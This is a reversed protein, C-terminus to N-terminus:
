RKDVMRRLEYSLKKRISSFAPRDALNIDERDDISHDYLEAGATDDWIPGGPQWRPWETYRYQCSRM